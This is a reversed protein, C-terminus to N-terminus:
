EYLKNQKARDIVDKPVVFESVYVIQHECRYGGAYIFITSATTGQRKGQWDQDAWQEVEKYHYYKGAREVCFDRSDKMLGGLYVVFQLDSKASIADQLSRSFNYLTDYVIQSAYQKLKPQLTSDGLSFDKIQQVLDSYKAGTNINQNLINIIPQKVQSELGENAILSELQTIAQNQLSKLYQADITFGDIIASFYADTVTTVQIIADTFDNLSSYYGSRKMAQEFYTGAQALIKRNAQSQQIYGDPTLDLKNLLTQMQAFLEKSTQDLQHGFDSYAKEIIDSVKKALDSAGM